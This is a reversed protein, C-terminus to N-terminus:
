EKGDLDGSLEIMIAEVEAWSDNFQLSLKERLLEAEMNLLLDMVLEYVEVRTVM